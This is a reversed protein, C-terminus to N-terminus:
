LDYDTEFAVVYHHGNEERTFARWLRNSVAGSVGCVPFFSQEQSYRRMGQDWRYTPLVLADWGDPMQVDMFRQQSVLLGRGM